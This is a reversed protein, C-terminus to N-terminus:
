LQMRVGNTKSFDNDEICLSILAFGGDASASPNSRLGEDKTLRLQLALSTMM